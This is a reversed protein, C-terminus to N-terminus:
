LIKHCRSKGDAQRFEETTCNSVPILFIVQILIQLPNIAGLATVVRKCDSINILPCALLKCRAMQWPWGFRRSRVCCGLPGFDVRAEHRLLHPSYSITLSFYLVEQLKCSKLPELLRIHALHVRMSVHSFGLAPDGSHEYKHKTPSVLTPSGFQEASLCNVDFSRLSAPRVIVRSHCLYYVNSYKRGCRSTQPWHDCGRFTVM